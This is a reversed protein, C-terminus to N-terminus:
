LYLHLVLHSVLRSWSVFETSVISEAWMAANVLSNKVPLWNFYEGKRCASAARCSCSADADEPAADEGEPAADADEPAADADAAEADEPAADADAAETDAAAADVAEAGAAESAAGSSSLSTSM